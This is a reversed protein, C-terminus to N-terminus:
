AAEEGESDEEDDRVLFVILIDVGLLFGAGRERAIDLGRHFLDVILWGLFCFCGGGSVSSGGFGVGLWLILLFWCVCGIGWRYLSLFDSEGTRVSDLTM